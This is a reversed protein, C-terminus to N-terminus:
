HNTNSYSIWQSVDLVYQRNSTTQAHTNPQKHVVWVQSGPSFPNTIHGLSQLLSKTHM